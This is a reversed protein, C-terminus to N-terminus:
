FWAFIDLLSSWRLRILAISFKQRTCFPCLMGLSLNHRLLNWHWTCKWRWRGLGRSSPLLCTQNHGEARFTWVQPTHPGKKLCFRTTWRRKKERSVKPLKCLFQQWDQKNSLLQPLEKVRIQDLDQQAHRIWLAHPMAIPLSPCQISYHPTPLNNPIKRSKDWPLVVLILKNHNINTNNNTNIKNNHIKNSKRKLPELWLASSWFSRFFYTGCLFFFSLRSVKTSYSGQGTKTVAAVPPAQLNTKDSLAIRKKKHNDSPDVEIENVNRKGLSTSTSTGIHSM